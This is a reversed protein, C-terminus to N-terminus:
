APDMVVTCALLGRSSSPRRSVMTIIPPTSSGCRAMRSCITM